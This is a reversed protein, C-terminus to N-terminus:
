LKQIKCAGSGPCSRDPINANADRKDEMEFEKALTYSLFNIAIVRQDPTLSALLDYINLGATNGYREIQNGCAVSKTITVSKKDEAMSFTVVMHEELGMAERIDEPITTRCEKGLIKTIKLM